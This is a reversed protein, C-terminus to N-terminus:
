NNSRLLSVDQQKFWEYFRGPDLFRPPVASRQVYGDKVSLGGWQELVDHRVRYARDRLEGFPICRNLRGSVGPQARVVIDSDGRKFKRTHANEGFRDATVDAVRVVEEVVYLGVMAYVLTHECLYTPRLGAYFAILDGRNMNAIERGRRDGVDGYTLHEFDPDLHMARQHLDAPLTAHRHLHPALGSAFQKLAPLVERYAREHDPHFPTGAKEPIPVYVFQCDEGVPGNWKGYAHDVAIRVLLAKM